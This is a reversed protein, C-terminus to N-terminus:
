LGGVKRSLRCLAYWVPCALMSVAIQLPLTPWLLQAALQGVAVHYAAIAGENVVLTGLCLLAAALLGPALLRECVTGAAIACFTLTIIAVPGADAGTLCWFSSALLAFLGGKEAGELMATCVIAVPVACVPAFWGVRLTQVLVATLFWLAYMVWRLPM